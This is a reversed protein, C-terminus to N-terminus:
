HFASLLVRVCVGFGLLLSSMPSPQTRKLFEKLMQVAGRPPCPQNGGGFSTFHIALSSSIVKGFPSSSTPSKSPRDCRGGIRPCM